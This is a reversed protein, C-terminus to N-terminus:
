QRVTPGGCVDTPRELGLLVIMAPLHAKNGNVFEKDFVAM